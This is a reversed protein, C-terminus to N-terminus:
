RTKQVPGGPGTACLVSPRGWALVNEEVVYALNDTADQNAKTLKHLRSTLVRMVFCGRSFSGGCDLDIELKYFLYGTLGLLVLANRVLSLLSNVLMSADNQTEYVISNSLSSSNFFLNLAVLVQQVHGQAHDDVRPEYNAVFRDSVYGALGRVGFVLLLVTSRDVAQDRRRFGRELLVEFLAPIMPETASGVIAGLAVIMWTGPYAGFYPWLRRMRQLLSGPGQKQQPHDDAKSPDTSM